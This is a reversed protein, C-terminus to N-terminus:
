NISGRCQPPSQQARDVADELWDITGQPWAVIDNGAGPYALLSLQWTGNSAKYSEWAYQSKNLYLNYNGRRGIRKATASSTLNADTDPTTMTAYITSSKKYSPINIWLATGTDRIDSMSAPHRGPGGLSVIVEELWRGPITKGYSLDRNNPLCAPAGGHPSGVDIPSAAIRDAEPTRNDSTCALFGLLALAASLLVKM